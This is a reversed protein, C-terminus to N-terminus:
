RAANVTFLGRMSTHFECFYPYSGALSFQICISGNAPLDFDFGGTAAVPEGDVSQRQTVTHPFFDLNDVRVVDGVVFTPSGVTGFGTEVSAEYVATPTDPCAVLEVSPAASSDNPTADLSAGMDAVTGMDTQTVEDGSCAGLFLAVIAMVSRARM